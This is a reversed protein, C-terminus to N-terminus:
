GDDKLDTKLAEVVLEEAERKCYKCFLSCVIKWSWECFCALLSLILTILM